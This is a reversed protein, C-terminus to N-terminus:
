RLNSYSTDAPAQPMSEAPFQVSVFLIPSVEKPFLNSEKDSSSSLYVLVDCGLDVQTADKIIGNFIVNCFLQLM